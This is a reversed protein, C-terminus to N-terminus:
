ISSPSINSIPSLKCDEESYPHIIDDQGMDPVKELHGFMSVELSYINTKKVLKWVFIGLFINDNRFIMNMFDSSPAVSGRRM